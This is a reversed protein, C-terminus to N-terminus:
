QNKNILITLDILTGLILALLGNTVEGLYISLAGAICFSISIIEKLTTLLKNM